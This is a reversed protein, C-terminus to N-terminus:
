VARVKYRSKQIGHWESILAEMCAEAFAPIDTLHFDERLGATRVPTGETDINLGTHILISTRGATCISVSLKQPQLSPPTHPMAESASPAEPGSYLDDGSRWLPLPTTAGTKAHWKQLQEQIISVFLRQLVVGGHLDGEFVEIIFHLMNPSYIPANNRVDELDVMDELTVTCPGIFSVVANGLLGTQKYIWHGALEAGTYHVPKSLFCSQM